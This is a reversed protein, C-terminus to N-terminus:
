GLRALLAATAAFVDGPAAAPDIWALDGFKDPERVSPTVDDGVECLVGAITWGDVVVEAFARAGAVDVTIGTEEELERVACAEYTEGPDVKGVSWSRISSSWSGRSSRSATSNPRRPSRSGYAELGLSDLEADICRRNVL